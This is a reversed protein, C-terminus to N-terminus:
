VHIAFTLPAGWVTCRKGKYSGGDGYPAAEWVRRREKTGTGGDKGVLSLLRNNIAMSLLQRWFRSRLLRMAVSSQRRHRTVGCWINAGCNKRLLEAPNGGEDSM